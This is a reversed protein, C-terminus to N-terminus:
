FKFERKAQKGDKISAGYENADINMDVLDEFNEHPRCHQVLAMPNIAQILEIRKNYAKDIGHQRKELADFYQKTDYTLPFNPDKNHSICMIFIADKLLAIIEPNNLFRTNDKGSSIIITPQDQASLERMNIEYRAMGELSDEVIEVAKTCTGKIIIPYTKDSGKETWCNLFKGPKGYMQKPKFLQTEIMGISGDPKKGIFSLGNFSYEASGQQRLNEFTSVDLGHKRLFASGEDIYDQKPEYIQLSAHDSTTITPNLDCDEENILSPM